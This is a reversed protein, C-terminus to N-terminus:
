DGQVLKFQLEEWRERMERGSGPDQDDNRRAM